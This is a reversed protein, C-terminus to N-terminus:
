KFMRKIFQMEYEYSEDDFHSDINLYSEELEENTESHLLKLEIFWSYDGSHSNVEGFHISSIELKHKDDTEIDDKIQDVYYLVKTFALLDEKNLEDYATFAEVKVGDVFQEKFHIEYQGGLQTFSDVVLGISEYKARDFPELEYNPNAKTLSVIKAGYHSFKHSYSKYSSYHNPYRDDVYYNNFNLHKEAEEESEFYHESIFTNHDEYPEGNNYEITYLKTM